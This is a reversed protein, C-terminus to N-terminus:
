SNYVQANLQLLIKFSIFICNSHEPTRFELKMNKEKQFQKFLFKNIILSIIM